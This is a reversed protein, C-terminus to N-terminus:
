AKGTERPKDVGSSKPKDKGEAGPGRGKEGSEEKLRKRYEKSRYDTEYFGSGKFIIGAGSGIMRTARGGCAPCTKHRPGDIKEFSEFVKGCRGCRFDYTPV